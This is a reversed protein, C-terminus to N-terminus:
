YRRYPERWSRGSGSGTGGRLPSLLRQAASRLGSASLGAPQGGDAALAIGV